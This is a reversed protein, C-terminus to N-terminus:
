QEKKLNNLSSNEPASTVPTKWVEGKIFIQKTTGNYTITVPKTFPGENAANYGVTIKATAGPAITDKNWVPTTCGCSAQVNDLAFPKTSTNTFEFNHTVPKGQPIKGFDFENEKLNLSEVPVAPQNILVATPSAMKEAKATNSQKKTAMNTQASLATTLCLFSFALFIQKM